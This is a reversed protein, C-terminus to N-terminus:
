KVFYKGVISIIKKIEDESPTYREKAYIAKVDDVTTPLLDAIKYAQTEEMHEVDLLDKVLSKTQAVSLQAFKQAHDLATRQEFILEKREKEVKKLINKVEALSVIKPTQETM